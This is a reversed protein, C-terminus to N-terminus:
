RDEQDTWTIDRRLKDLQKAMQFLTHAMEARKQTSISGDSKMEILAKGFHELGEETYHLIRRVQMNHPKEETERTTINLFDSLERIEEASLKKVIKDHLKAWAELREKQMQASFSEFM